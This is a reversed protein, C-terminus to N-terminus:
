GANSIITEYNYETNGLSGRRQTAEISIKVSEPTSNLNTKNATFTIVYNSRGNSSVHNTSYTQGDSIGRYDNGFLALIDNYPESRYQDVVAQVESQSAVFQRHSANAHMMVIITRASGAMVISLLALAVLNEVITIGKQNATKTHIM